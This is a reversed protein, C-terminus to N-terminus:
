RSGKLRKREERLYAKASSVSVSNVLSMLYEANPEVYMQFTDVKIGDSIKDDDSYPWSNIIFEYETRGWVDGFCFMYPESSLLKREEPTMSVYKAVSWKVGYFDFLNYTKLENRESKSSYCLPLLKVGFYLSDLSVKKSM